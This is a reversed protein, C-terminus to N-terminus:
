SLVNRFEQYASCITHENPRQEREEGVANTLFAGESVRREDRREGSYLYLAPSGM